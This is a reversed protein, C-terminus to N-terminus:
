APNSSAPGGLVDDFFKELDRLHSSVERALALVQLVMGTLLHKIVM